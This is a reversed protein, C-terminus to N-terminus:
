KTEKHVTRKKCKPCYKKLEKREPDNASNKQTAYNREKCETCELTILKVKSKSKSKAM